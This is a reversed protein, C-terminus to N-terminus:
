DWWLFIRLHQVIEELAEVTECGQDVIDPCFEYLDEAFVAPDRPARDLTFQITDTEAQWIRIGCQRHYKRLKSIL